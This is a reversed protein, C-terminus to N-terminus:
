ENRQSKTNNTQQSQLPPLINQISQRQQEIFERLQREITTQNIDNYTALIQEFASAGTTPHNLIYAFNQSPQLKTQSTVQMKIATINSHTSKDCMVLLQVDQMLAVLQTYNTHQQRFFQAKLEQKTFHMTFKEYAIFSKDMLQKIHQICEDSNNTQIWTNNIERFSNSNYCDILGIADEIIKDLRHLQNQYIFKQLEIDQNTKNQSINFKITKNLIYLSILVSIISGGYTAWFNLWITSAEQGGIINVFPSPCQLLFNLTIPIAIIAIAAIIYTRKLNKM